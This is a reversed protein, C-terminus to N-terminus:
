EWKRKWRSRDSWRRHPLLLLLHLICCRRGSFPAMVKSSTEMSLLLLKTLDRCTRRRM